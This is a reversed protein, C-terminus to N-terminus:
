SGTKGTSETTTKAAAATSKPPTLRVKGAQIDTLLAALAAPDKREGANEVISAPVGLRTLTEVVSEWLKKTKGPAALYIRSVLDQLRDMDATDRHEYFRQIVKQQYASYNRDAM